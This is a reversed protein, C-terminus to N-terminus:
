SRGGRMARDMDRQQDRKKIDERKDHLKKGTGLGILIKAYGNKFYIKIPVITYGKRASAGALKAIEKKHLLLKRSRVPDVNWRNGQEYAPIHFQHLWAENGKIQAYAEQISGQGKRLSKVETGVLQLGAEFTEEISYLHNAKRNQCVLKEGPAKSNKPM